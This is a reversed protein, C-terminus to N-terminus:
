ITWHSTIRCCVRFIMCLGESDFKIRQRISVNRIQDSHDYNEYSGRSQHTAHKPKKNSRYGKKDKWTRSM